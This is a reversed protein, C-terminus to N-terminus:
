KKVQKREGFEFSSRFFLLCFKVFDNGLHQALPNQCLAKLAM